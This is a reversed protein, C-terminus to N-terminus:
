PLVAYRLLDRPRDAVTIVDEDCAECIAGYRRKVADESRAYAAHERWIVAGAASRPMDRACEGCPLVFADQRRARASQARAYAILASSRPTLSADRLMEHRAHIKHAYRSLRLMAAPAVAAVAEDHTYSRKKDRYRCRPMAYRASRATRPAISPAEIDADADIISALRRCLPM